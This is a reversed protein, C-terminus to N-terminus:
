DIQLRLANKVLAPLIAEVTDADFVTNKEQFVIGVERVTIKTSATYLDELAATIPPQYLLREADTRRDTDVSLRKKLGPITISLNRRSFLGTGYTIGIRFPLPQPFVAACNVYYEDSLGSGSARIKHKVDRYLLIEVGDVTGTIMGVMITSLISEVFGGMVSSVKDVDLDVKKAQLKSLLDVRELYPDLGPIFRLGLAHAIERWKKKENM